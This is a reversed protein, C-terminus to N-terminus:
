TVAARTKAGIIMPRAWARQFRRWKITTIQNREDRWLMAMPMFGAEITQMLRREAAGQTDGPYGILVYCRLTHSARTFGAALLRRGADRLPEHDDGTDYAFFVQKPHLDLLLDIHWDRLRAAELGGTFEARRPQRELMEFVARIHGESCALLNDDLVNWGETIPLERIDGDRRWVQCFWCKNPCGRSTIVYGRKLYKGPEFDGGQTGMAPGGMSVNGRERWIEALREARLVDWSFTVSIHIEAVEPTFLDPEGIYVGSDNPTARTRRPFVRCFEIM